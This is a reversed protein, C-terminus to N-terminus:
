KNFGLSTLFYDMKEELKTMRERLESNEDKIRINENILERMACHDM